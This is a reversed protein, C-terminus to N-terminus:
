KIVVKYNNREAWARVGQMAVNTIWGENPNKKGNWRPSIWKYHTYPTYDVEGGGINIARTTNKVSNRLANTSERRINPAGEHLVDRIARSLSDIDSM